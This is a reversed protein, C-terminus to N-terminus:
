LRALDAAPAAPDLVVAWLRAVAEEGLLTAAKRKLGAEIVDEALPASLDYAFELRRGDTAVVEGRTATDVVSADGVVVVKKAFEVFRPEAALEATYARDAATDVGHALMGALWAYSFKVELGTRPAKKDCVNLWRPNTAIEVRAIQDPTVPQAALAAALGEIMAHTGHCCAHLKYKVDDFLFRAPPLDALAEASQPADSHTALFGLPGALGDDASIFGRRALEAAEVGNSAAIGANLPKGMTGFQSILGSARTGVLSLANAMEERSLGCIRGAAVAAGVAGATATQHFGREYHARGLAVGFRCSAEAGLLFAHLAAEMPAGRAEALAITAPAIAVSPHGVHAFHTDDYDLAHSIAGNVLAAARAPAQGGGFLTAVPAGGDSLIYDRLIRGVPEDRGARAVVAWDFLSFRGFARTREPMADLPLEAIDLLANLLESRQPASGGASGRGSM